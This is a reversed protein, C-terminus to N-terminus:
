SKLTTHTIIPIAYDSSYSAVVHVMRSEFGHIPLPYRDKGFYVSRNHSADLRRDLLGYGVALRSCESYINVFYRALM